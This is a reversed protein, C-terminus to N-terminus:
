SIVQDLLICMRVNGAFEVRVKTPPGIAGVFRSTFYADLTPIQTKEFDIVATMQASICQIRFSVPCRNKAAACCALL